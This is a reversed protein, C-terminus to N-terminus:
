SSNHRHKCLVFHRVNDFFIHGSVVPAGHHHNVNNVCFSVMFLFFVNHANAVVVGSHHDIRDVCFSVLLLLFLM